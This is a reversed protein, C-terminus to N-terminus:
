NRQWHKLASLMRLDEPERYFWLLDTRLEQSLHQEAQVKTWECTGKKHKRSTSWMTQSFRSKHPLWIKILWKKQGVFTIIGFNDKGNKGGNTFRSQRGKVRLALQCFFLIQMIIKKWNHSFIRCDWLASLVASEAARDREQEKCADPSEGTQRQSSTSIM